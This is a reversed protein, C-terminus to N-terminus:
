PVGVSVAIGEPESSYRLEWRPTNAGIAVGTILGPFFGVLAGVFAGGGRSFGRSNTAEVAVAGIVAGAATGGLTGYLLGEGAHDGVEAWIRQIEEAEVARQDDDTRLVWSDEATVLHGVLREKHGRVDLRVRQAPKLGAVVLSLTDAQARLASAPVLLAISSVTVLAFCAGLPSPSPDLHSM